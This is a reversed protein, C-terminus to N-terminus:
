EDSEEERALSRKRADAEIKHVSAATAIFNTRTDKETNNYNKETDKRDKETNKRNKEIRKPEKRHKYSVRKCADTEM